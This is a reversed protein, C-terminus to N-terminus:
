IPSHGLLFWAKDTLAVVLVVTSKDTQTHHGRVNLQQKCVSMRYQLVGRRIWNEVIVGQFAASLRGVPQAGELQTPTRPPTGPEPSWGTGTWAITVMQPTFCQITSRKKRQWCKLNLFKSSFQIFYTQTPAFDRHLGTNKKGRKKIHMKYSNNSYTWSNM